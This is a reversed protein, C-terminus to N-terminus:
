FIPNLTVDIQSEKDQVQEDIFKKMEKFKYFNNKQSELLQNYTIKIKYDSVLNQIPIAIHPKAITLLFYVDYENSNGEQLIKRNSYDDNNFDFSKPYVNVSIIYHFDDEECKSVAMNKLFEFEKSISLAKELNMNTKNQMYFYGLYYDSNEM